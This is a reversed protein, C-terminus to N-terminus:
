QTALAHDRVNRQEVIAICSVRKHVNCNLVVRRQLAPRIQARPEIAIHHLLGTSHTCHSCCMSTQPANTVANHVAPLPHKTTSELQMALCAQVVVVLNEMQRYTSLDCVAHACDCRMRLISGCKFLIIAHLLTSLSFIDSMQTKDAAVTYVQIRTAVLQHLHRISDGFEATVCQAEQQDQCQSRMTTFAETM